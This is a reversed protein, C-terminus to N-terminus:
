SASKVLYDVIAASGFILVIGVGVNIAWTWSMKGALASFGCAIVAIIAVTRTLGGTLMGLVSTALSDWPAAMALEPMVVTLAVAAIGLAKLARGDVAAKDAKDAALAAHADMMVGGVAARAKQMSWSIM